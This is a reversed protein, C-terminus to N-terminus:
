LLWGALAVVRILCGSQYPLWESLAVVQELPGSCLSTRLPVVKWDFSGPHPSWRYVPIINSHDEAHTAKSLKWQMPILHSTYHALCSCVVLDTSSVGRLKATRQRNGHPRVQCCHGTSFSWGQQRHVGGRSGAAAQGHERSWLQLCEATTDDLTNCSIISLLIPM